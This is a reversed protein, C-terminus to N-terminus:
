PLIGKLRDLLGGSKGQEQDLRGLEQLAEYCDPKIRVANEFMKRARDAAGNERFIKGLYVYPKERNPSLKIGKAINELAEKLVVANKPKHLFQAYGLRALYEGEKPDLHAAMGYAEVAQEFSKAALFASGKRFWAEADLGRAALKELRAAKEAAIQEPTKPVGARARGKVVQPRLQALVTRSNGLRLRDFAREIRMRAEGALEKIDPHEVLAAEEPLTDLLSEHAQQVEADTADEGIGLVDFDDKDRIYECFATLEAMAREANWPAAFSEVLPAAPSEDDPEEARESVAAVGREELAAEARKALTAEARKELVAEARKAIVAESREELIEPQPIEEEPLDQAVPDEMPQPPEERSPAELVPDPQPEAEVPVPDLLLMVPEEHFVLLGAVFLGYLTRADLDGSDLVQQVSRGGYLDDLVLQESADLDLEALDCPPDEVRSVYLSAQSNLAEIATELPSWHRAGELMLAAQGRGIELAVDARIHKHPFYQFSGETWRFTELLQEEAQERIAAAFEEESLAGMAVLIEGCSGQIEGLLKKVAACQAQSIRGRRALFKEPAEVGGSTSAASPSGNRLEFAKRDKRHTVTLVGSAADRCLRRLVEAIPTQALDGFIAADCEPSTSAVSPDVDMSKPAQDAFQLVSELLETKLAPKTFFEKIGLELAGGYLDPSREGKTLVIIPVEAPWGGYSRIEEILAMGNCSALVIEALVLDIEEVRVLILAEDPDCTHLLRYGAAHLEQQFGAPVQLKDDIYLITGM